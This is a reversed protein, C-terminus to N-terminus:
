YPLYRARHGGNQPQLCRLVRSGVGSEIRPSALVPQSCPTPVPPRATRASAAAGRARRGFAGGRGQLPVFGIRCLIYAASTGSFHRVVMAWIPSSSGPRRCCAAVGREGRRPPEASKRGRSSPRPGRLSSRFPSAVQNIRGTTM